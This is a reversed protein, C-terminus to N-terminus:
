RLKIPLPTWRDRFLTCSRHVCDCSHRLILGIGNDASSRFSDPKYHLRSNISHAIMMHYDRYTLCNEQSKLMVSRPLYIGDVSLHAVARTYYNSTVKKCKVYCICTLQRWKLGVNRSKYYMEFSLVAHNFKFTVTLSLRHLLFFWCYNDSTVQFNRLEPYRKPMVQCAEHRRDTVRM